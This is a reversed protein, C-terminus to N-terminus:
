GRVCVTRALVHSPSPSLSLSGCVCVCVYVCPGLNYASYRISPDVDEIRANCLATQEANGSRALGALLARARVLADLANEWQQMEVALTGDLSHWYAQTDLLTRPACRDGLAGCLSALARAHDAARRLRKIAHFRKAPADAVDRKLAQAYAWDREAQFLLVHLARGSWWWRVGRLVYVSM